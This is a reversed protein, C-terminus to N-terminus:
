AVDMSLAYIKLTSNTSNTNIKYCRLRDLEVGLSSWKKKVSSIKEDSDCCAASLISEEAIIGFNMQIDLLYCDNFIISNQSGDQWKILAKVIDSEGPNNRDVELNLLVSDHWPLDDFKEYDSM